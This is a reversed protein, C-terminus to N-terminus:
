SGCVRDLVFLAIESLKISWQSVSTRLYSEALRNLSAIYKENFLYIM